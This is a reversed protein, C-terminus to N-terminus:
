NIAKTYWYNCACRGPAGQAIRWFTFSTAWCIPLPDTKLSGLRAFSTSVRLVTTAPQSAAPEPDFEDSDHISGGSTLDILLSKKASQHVARAARPVTRATLLGSSLGNCLEQTIWRPPRNRTVPPM